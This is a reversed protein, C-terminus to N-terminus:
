RKGSKTEKGGKNKEDRRDMVGTLKFAAFIIILVFLVALYAM